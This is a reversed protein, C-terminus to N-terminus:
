KKSGKGSLLTPPENRMAMRWRRAEKAAARQRAARERVVKRIQASIAGETNGLEKGAARLQRSLEAITVGQQVAADHARLLRVNRDLALAKGPGRKPRRTLRLFLARAEDEGLHAVAARFAALVGQEVAAVRWSTEEATEFNLIPPPYLGFIDARPEVPPYFPRQPMKM